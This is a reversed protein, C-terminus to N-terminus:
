GVTGKTSRRFIVGSPLRTPEYTGDVFADDGEEDTIFLYAMEATVESFLEKALKIQCIFRM